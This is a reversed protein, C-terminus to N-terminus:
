QPATNINKTGFGARRENLQSRLKSQQYRLMLSNYARKQRAITIETARGGGKWYWLTARGFGHNSAELANISEILEDFSDQLTIDDKILGDEINKITDQITKVGENIADEATTVETPKRSALKLTTLDIIDVIDKIDQRIIPISTPLEIAVAAAEGM